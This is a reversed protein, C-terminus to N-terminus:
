KLQKKLEKGKNPMDSSKAMKDINRTVQLVRKLFSNKLVFKYEFYLKQNMTLM